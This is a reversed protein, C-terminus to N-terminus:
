LYNKRDIKDIIVISLITVLVNVIGLGVTGLISSSSGLGAKTLILPTYYIIANIGIIQQFFAFLCGIILVPRVWKARLLKWASESNHIVNKM